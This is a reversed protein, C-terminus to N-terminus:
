KPLAFAVLSDGKQGGFSHHGGAAILVYQTGDHTGLYSVPPANGSAPLSATWLLRGTTTDFARFRHDTSAGVFSLGTRTILVGGLAPVGVTLPIHSKIGFPGEDSAYGLPESWIIKRAVVDVGSIRSWPPQMCPVQLPSLFPVSEEAYPLGAQANIGILAQIGNRGHNMAFAGHADAEARTLLRVHSPLYSTITVMMHRAPDYSAGGWDMGGMNGPYQLSPTLGPPTMPGDYRARKFAIRCWLQDLPTLGWTMAETLREGALSPLGVSFPQTPSPREGPAVGRIPVAKEDVPALPEGTARNLLFTEGRKSTQLLAPIESGDAQPLDILAPQSPLDYDWLDHHTTQFLWRRAGTEIDLAMVSSSIEDDFPRRQPGYYDPTSNGTPVYLLGLKDDYSMQGWSNPTALTYINDPPPAGTREPHGVDYAWALKGTIADFARIVGSPEGISQNDVVAAGLVINGHAIIPGGNVGYYGREVSGLGELLSVEGNRGFERCQAGTKADVALLRADVTAEIIREACVGVGAPAHYYGLARCARYPPGDADVRPNFRWRQQGTEADLAAIENLSDCAYVTDGIKLPAIQLGDPAQEHFSFTWAVRLRSVNAPTIQALSSYHLGATTGGYDTWDEAAGGKVEIPPLPMSETGLVAAGNLLVGAVPLLVAAAVVLSLAFRKAAISCAPGGGLCRGIASVLMLAGLLELLALRPVMAWANLGSESVTWLATGVILGGYVWRAWCSGRWLLVATFALAFGALLYYTSGGLFKLIGGGALLAAATIALIVALLRVPLQSVAKQANSTGNHIAVTRSSV